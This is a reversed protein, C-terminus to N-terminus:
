SSRIVIAFTDQFSQIFVKHTNYEHCTQALAYFQTDWKAFTEILAQLLSCRAWLWASLLSKFSHHRVGPGLSKVDRIYKRMWSDPDFIVQSWGRKEMGSGRGWKQWDAPLSSPM